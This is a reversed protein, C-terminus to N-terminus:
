QFRKVKILEIDFILTSNPEVRGKGETGYALTHPIFFRSQGGERMLMVGEQWGTIVSLLSGRFPVNSPVTSEFVRGDIFRGTYHIIVSDTLNPILGNGQEIIEYQLGTGTEIVGEILRNEALFQKGNALNVDAYYKDVERRADMYPITPTQNSFGEEVGQVLFEVEITQDIKRGVLSSVLTFAEDIGVLYSADNKSVQSDDVEGNEQLYLDLLSDKEFFSLRLENGILYDNMGQEIERINFKDSVNSGSYANYCGRAHDLGICYSVKQIYNDFQIQTTNISDLDNNVENTNSGGGCSLLFTISALVAWYKM